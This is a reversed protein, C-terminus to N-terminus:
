YGKPLRDFFIIDYEVLWALYVGATAINSGNVSQVGAYWKYAVLPASYVNSSNTSGTTGVYNAAQTTLAVGTLDAVTVSSEVINTDHGGGIISLEGLKANASSVFNDDPTLPLVTVQAVNYPLLLTRCPITTSINSYIMKIKSATVIYSDYVLSLAVFGRATAPPANLAISLGSAVGTGAGLPQNTAASAIRCRYQDPFGGVNRCIVMKTDQKKAKPKRQNL